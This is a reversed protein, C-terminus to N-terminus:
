SGGGGRPTNSGYDAIVSKRKTDKDPDMEREKIFFGRLLVERGGRLDFQSRRGAAGGQLFGDRKERPGRRLEAAEVGEL